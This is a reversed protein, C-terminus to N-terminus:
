KNGFSPYAEDLKKKVKKQKKGNRNFPDEINIDTSTDDSDFLAELLIDCSSLMICTIILLVFQKTMKIKNIKMIM